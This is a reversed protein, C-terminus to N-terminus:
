NEEDEVQTKSKKLQLNQEKLTLYPCSPFLGSPLGLHLHRFINYHIMLFRSLTM